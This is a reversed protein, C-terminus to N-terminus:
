ARLARRMRELYEKVGKAIERKVIPQIVKGLLRNVQMETTIHQSFHVRTRNDGVATFTARGKSWMNKTETTDWTLLGASPRQWRCKQAGNFTVGKESKPVLILHLTDDGIKEHRALPGYNAAITDLDGFHAEVVAIPFDVTFTEEYAGEFRAM